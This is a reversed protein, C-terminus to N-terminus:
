SAFKRMSSENPQNIASVETQRFSVRHTCAREYSGMAKGMEIMDNFVGLVVHDSSSPHSRTEVSASLVVLGAVIRGPSVKPLDDFTM